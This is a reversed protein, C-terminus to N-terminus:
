PHRDVGAQEAGIFAEDRHPVGPDIVVDQLHGEVLADDLVGRVEVGSVVQVFPVFVPQVVVVSDAVGTPLPLTFIPVIVAGAGVAHHAAGILVGVAVPGVSTEGVPVGAVPIGRAPPSCRSDPAHGGGCACARCVCVTAILPLPVLASIGGLLGVRDVEIIAVPLRAFPAAETVGGLLGPVRDLEIIAVPLGIGTVVEAITLPLGIGTVVEAITIPLTEIVALSTIVVRLARQEIPLAIQELALPFQQVPIALEEFAFLLAAAPRSQASM